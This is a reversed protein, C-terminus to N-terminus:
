IHSRYVHFRPKATQNQRIRYVLPNLTSNQYTGQVLQNMYYSYRNRFEPVGLIRTFVYDPLTAGLSPYVVPEMKTADRVAEVFTFAREIVRCTPSNM